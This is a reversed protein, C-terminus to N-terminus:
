AGGWTYRYEGPLEEGLAALGAQVIKTAEAVRKGTTLATHLGESDNSVNDKGIPNDGGTHAASGIYSGTITDGSVSFGNLILNCDNLYSLVLDQGGNRHAGGTVAGGVKCLRPIDGGQLVYRTALSNGLRDIVAKMSAPLSVFYVPAGWIIGDAAMYKDAIEQLDDEIICKGKELCKFCAICYHVKKGALQYLETEVNPVSAAGELAKQVLTTTNGNKRPSGAIGLIKVKNM